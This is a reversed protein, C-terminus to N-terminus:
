CEGWGGRRVEAPYDVERAWACNMKDEEEDYRSDSDATDVERREKWLAWKANRQEVWRGGGGRMGLWKWCRFGQKESPGVFIEQSGGPEKEDAM